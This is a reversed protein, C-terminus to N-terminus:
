ELQLQLQLAIAEPTARLNVHLVEHAQREERQARRGFRVPQLLQAPWQVGDRRRQRAVVLEATRERARHVARHGEGSEHRRRRHQAEHEARVEDVRHQERALAGHRLLRQAEAELEVVGVDLGGAGLDAASWCVM